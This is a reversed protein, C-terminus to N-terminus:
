SLSEGRITVIFFVRPRDQDGIPANPDFGTEAVVKHFQVSKVKVETSLDGADLSWIYPWDSHRNYYVRFSM